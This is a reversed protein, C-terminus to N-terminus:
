QVPTTVCFLMEINNLNYRLLVNRETVLVKNKQNIKFVHGTELCKFNHFLNELIIM